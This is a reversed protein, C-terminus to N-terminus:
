QFAYKNLNHECCYFLDVDLTDCPAITGVCPSVVLHAMAIVNWSQAFLIFLIPDVYYFKSTEGRPGIKRMKM